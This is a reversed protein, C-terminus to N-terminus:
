TTPRPSRSRARSAAAGTLNGLQGLVINTAVGTLFGIMVSISVFRTYRGLKLLGAAIMTIGAM